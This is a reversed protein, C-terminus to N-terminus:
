DLNWQDERNTRRQWMWTVDKVTTIVFVAAFVVCVALAFGLGLLMLLGILAPPGLLACVLAIDLYRGADSTPTPVRHPEHSSQETTEPPSDITQM